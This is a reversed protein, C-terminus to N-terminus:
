SIEDLISDSHGGLDLSLDYGDGSESPISVPVPSLQRSLCIQGIRVRCTSGPKLAAGSVHSSLAHRRVPAIGQSNNTNYFDHHREFLCMPMSLRQSCELKVVSTKESLELEVGDKVWCSSLFSETTLAQETCFLAL